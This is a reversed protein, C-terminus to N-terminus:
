MVRSRAEGEPATLWRVLNSKVRQLQGPAIEGVSGILMGSEVVALRGVRILSTEKLGSRAFDNDGARIIEDLGEVYQGIQSSIMCTLWDGCSGPLKSVLLAPRLKGYVLDTQPFNFLVIQGPRRM